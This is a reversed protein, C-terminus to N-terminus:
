GHLAKDRPSEAVTKRPSRTTRKQRPTRQAQGVAVPRGAAAAKKAPAAAGASSSGAFLMPQLTTSFDILGPEAFAHLGDDSGLPNFMQDFNADLTNLLDTAKQGLSSIGGPLRGLNGFGFGTVM